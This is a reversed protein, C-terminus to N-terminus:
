REFRVTIKAGAAVHAGAPPSQERAVGSGVAEIELNNEEALEVAARLHKGVFSPVPIGGQEVDIVVTGSEPKRTAAPEPHRLPRAAVAPERTRLAAPIVRAVGFSAPKAPTPKFNGDIPTSAADGAMTDGSAMDLTSGLRDPSGDAMDDESMQAAKKSALLV